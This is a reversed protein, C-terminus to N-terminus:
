LKDVVLADTSESADKGMGKIDTLILYKGFRCGHIGEKWIHGSLVRTFPYLGVLLQNGVQTIRM